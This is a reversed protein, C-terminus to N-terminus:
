VLYAARFAVVFCVKIAVSFISMTMLLIQALPTVMLPCRFRGFTNVGSCFIVWGARDAAFSSEQVMVLLMVAVVAATILFTIM